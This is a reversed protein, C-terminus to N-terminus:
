PVVLRYVTYVGASPSPREIRIIDGPLGGICRIIPDANTIYPLMKKNTMYLSELLEAHKEKPVIEHKPVMVHNMPNNVIKPINFCFVPINNTLYYRAAILHYKELNDTTTMYVIEKHGDAIKKDLLQAFSSASTAHYLLLCTHSPDDKKKIVLNLASLGGNLALNIEVPSFKRYPTVDYGRNELLDLITVRSRYINDIMELDFTSTMKKPQEEM